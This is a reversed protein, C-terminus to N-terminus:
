KRKDAISQKATYWDSADVDEFITTVADAPVGIEDFADVIASVLKDKQEKDRGPLLSIRVAPM